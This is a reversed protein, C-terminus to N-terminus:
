TCHALSIILLEWIRVACQFRLNAEVYFPTFNPIFSRPARRYRHPPPRACPNSSREAHFGHPNHSPTSPCGPFVRDGRSFASFGRFWRFLPQQIRKQPMIKLVKWVLGSRLCQFMLAKNLPANQFACKHRSNNGRHAAPGAGTSLNERSRCDTKSMLCQFMSSKNLMCIREHTKWQILCPVPILLTQEVTRHQIGGSLRGFRPCQWISSREVFFQESVREQPILKSWM